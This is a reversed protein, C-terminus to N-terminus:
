NPFDWIAAEKGERGHRKSLGRRKHEPLHKRSELEPDHQTWTESLTDAWVEHLDGEHDRFRCVYRGTAYDRRPKDSPQKVLRWAECEHRGAHANWRYFVLQKFVPLADSDHFANVEVADFQDVAIASQDHPITAFLLLILGNM